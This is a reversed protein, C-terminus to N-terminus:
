RTPIQSAICAAQQHSTFLRANSDMILDAGPGQRRVVTTYTRTHLCEIDCVCEHPLLIQPEVVMVPVVMHSLGPVIMFMIDHAKPINSEVRHIERLLSIRMLWQRRVRMNISPYAQSLQIPISRSEERQHDAYAQPRYTNDTRYARFSAGTYRQDENTAPRPQQGFPTGRFQDQRTQQPVERRPEATLLKDRADGLAQFFKVAEDTYGGNKDPHLHVSIRKYAGKVQDPTAHPPLGLREHPPRMHWDKPYFVVPDTHPHPRTNKPDINVVQIDEQKSPDRSVTLQLGKPQGPNWSVVKGMRGNLHISRQLGQIVVVQDVEFDRTIVKMRVAAIAGVCLTAAVIAEVGGSLPGRLEKIRQQRRNKGEESRKKARRAASQGRHRCQCPVRKGKMFPKYPDVCRLHVWNGCTCTVFAGSSRTERLPPSDSDEREPITIHAACVGCTQAHQAKRHPSHGQQAEKQRPETKHPRHGCKTAEKIVEAWGRNGKEEMMDGYIGEVSAAKVGRELAQMEVEIKLPNNPGLSATLAEVRARFIRHIRNTFVERQQTTVIATHESGLITKCGHSDYTFYTGQFYGCIYTWGNVNVHVVTTEGEGKVHGLIWEYKPHLVQGPESSPEWRLACLHSVKGPREEGPARVYEALGAEITGVVTNWERDRKPRYLHHHYSALRTVADLFRSDHVYAGSIILAAMIITQAQCSCGLAM